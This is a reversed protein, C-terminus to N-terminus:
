PTLSPPLHASTGSIVALGDLVLNNVQRFPISLLHSFTSAAGGSLLCLAHPLHAIQGFMKEIAGAQAFLCGSHIADATNRPTTCFEGELLSLQATNVSLARKMLEIGPLILGGLFTGSDNILDITTATGATVVLCAHTHLSHAGILAAWRDSGLQAPNAYLNHLRNHQPAAIIWEPTLAYASSLQNITDRISTGAVNTGIIRRIDPYTTFIAALHETQNHSCANEAVPHPSAPTIIRWKIRTNGADILLIM